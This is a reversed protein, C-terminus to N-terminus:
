APEMTQVEKLKRFSEKLKEAQGILVGYLICSCLSGMFISLVFCFMYFRRAFKMQAYSMQRMARIGILHSLILILDMGSISTTIIIVISKILLCYEPLEITGENSICQEQMFIHDKFALLCVLCSLLIFITAIIIGCINMGIFNAADENILQQIAKIQEKNARISDRPSCESKITHQRQCSPLTDLTTITLDYHPNGLIPQVTNLRVGATNPKM